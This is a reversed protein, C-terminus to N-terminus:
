IEVKIIDAPGRRELEVLLVHIEMRLHRNVRIEKELAERLKQENDKLEKYKRYPIYVPGFTM